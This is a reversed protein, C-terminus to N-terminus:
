RGMAVGGLDWMPLFVGLALILVMIGIVTIMIPEISSSLKKTDYDVEREYFDAVEDLMVDVSGTKDGVAIMQLVLPTFLNSAIATQTLSEGHELGDRMSLVRQEIFTNDVAKSVIVLTQTIPVGARFAMSFARSFRALTARNIINGVLPIHLKYRDWKYHGQETKLYARLGIIIATIALIIYQWYDVTFQSTAMLTKTAWPLEANFGAFVKAFQPIVFLNIIGVALTMALIVFSPYRLAEKVRDKTEKDIELYKYIHQFALDLQGTNEGVNIMSIFLTSFIHPHKQMSGALSRGAELDTAIEGIANKMGKNNMHEKLGQLTPLISIGAKLLTYMQRSFMILENADPKPNNFVDQFKELLDDPKAATENITIPTIGINILHSAANNRSNEELEGSVSEGKANRGKYQFTTM